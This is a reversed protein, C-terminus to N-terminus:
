SVVTPTFDDHYALQVAVKLPKGGFNSIDAELVVFSRSSTETSTLVDGKKPAVEGAKIVLDATCDVGPRWFSYNVVLGDGGDTREM